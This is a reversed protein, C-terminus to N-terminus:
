AVGRAARALNRADTNYDRGIPYWVVEVGAFQNIQVQLARIIDSHRVPFRKGQKGSFKHYVGKEADYQWKKMYSAFTNVVNASDTAIILRIDTNDQKDNSQNRCNLWDPLVRDRVIALALLVSHFEAAQKTASELYLPKSQNYASNKSFFVGLGMKAPGSQVGSPMQGDVCIVLSRQKLHGEEAEAALLSNHQPHSHHKECTDGRLWRLQCIECARVSFATNPSEPPLTKFRIWTFPRSQKWIEMGKVQEDLQPVFLPYFGGNQAITNSQNAHPNEKLAELRQADRGDSPWSFMVESPHAIYLKTGEKLVYPGKKAARCSFLCLPCIPHGHEHCRDPPAVAGPSAERSGM